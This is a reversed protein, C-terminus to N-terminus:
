HNESVMYGWAILMAGTSPLFGAAATAQPIALVGAGITTGTVLTAAGLVSGEQRVAKKKGGQEVYELSSFMRSVEGSDYEPFIIRDDDVRGVKEKLKDVVSNSKEEVEEKVENDVTSIRLSSTPRKLATPSSFAFTSSRPSLFTTGLLIAQGQFIKM